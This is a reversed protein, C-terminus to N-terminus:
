DTAGGCTGDSRKPTVRVEDLHVRAATCGADAADTRGDHDNDVQDRCATGSDRSEADPRGQHWRTGVRAWLADFWAHFPLAMRPDDFRLTNEDNTREGASTWNMSGMVLVRGDAALAKTHMKGGLDEVAVEVGAARLLAHLSYANDAGTADILLRVQVGRRAADALDQAVGTHTLFFAAADIRTRAGRITDRLARDMAPDQPSFFALVPTGDSLTARLAGSPRKERHHAGGWMQEFERTYWSAVTADDVVVAVNTNYGGTCTDSVNASGTWVVHHDIVFFKDHVLAGTNSIRDSSAQVAVACTEGLDIAVCRVPGLTGPPQDACRPASWPRASGAARLDSDRDDRVDGLRAVLDATGSYDNSGDIQRDVLGRVVVGRARAALLADVIAPQDRVGYVAFDITQTAATLRELLSACLRTQCRSDPLTTATPAHLVLEVASPAARAPLAVTLLIALVLIPFRM